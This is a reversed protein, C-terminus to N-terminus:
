LVKSLKGLRETVCSMTWIHSRYHKQDKSKSGVSLYLRQSVPHNWLLSATHSGLSVQSLGNPKQTARERPLVRQLGSGDQFFAASLHPTRMSASIHWAGWTRDAQLQTLSGWSLVAPLWSLCYFFHLWTNCQSIIYCCAVSCERLNIQPSILITLWLSTNDCNFPISGYWPKINM